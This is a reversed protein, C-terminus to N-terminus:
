SAGRAGARGNASENEVPASSVEVQIAVWPVPTAIPSTGAAEGGNATRSGTLAVSSVPTMLVAASPATVISHAMRRGGRSAVEDRTMSYRVGPM